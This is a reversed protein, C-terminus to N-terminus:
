LAAWISDDALRDWVVDVAQAVNSAIIGAGPTMNPGPDNFVLVPRTTNKGVELVTGGVLSDKEVCDLMARAVEEPTVWGDKEEDIYALKEPNDTWLPTRVLGPAVANVRVGLKPELPALCRTFGSIAYKSAGYLPALFAPLQAAISSILIVRKPNQVSVREPSPYAMSGSQPPHLWLQLALQTTRIPHTVNIDLLAYSNGEISDKSEPSGPPHWFNSWSPEFVGAGPCVIDFSGFESVAVEFMRRLDAWLTVDARVFVARPSRERGGYQSILVEAEPRLSLDAFVVNCGRNLLLAAFALNIGSGAGTIIASKGPVFFPVPTETTMIFSRSARPQYNLAPIDCDDAIKTCVIVHTRTVQPRQLSPGTRSDQPPLDLKIVNWNERHFVQGAVTADKSPVYCHSYIFSVGNAIRSYSDLAFLRFNDNCWWVATDWRCAVQACTGPGWPLLPIDRSYDLDNVIGQLVGAGGFGRKSDCNFKANPPFDAERKKLETTNKRPFDSDWNPNLKLLQARAEEITGNLVVTEGGPTVQFQWSPVHVAFGNRPAVLGMAAPLACCLSFIYATAKM